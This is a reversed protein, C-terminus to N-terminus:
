TKNQIVIYDQLIIEKFESSTTAWDIIDVKWPLDSESFANVLDAHTALDLPTNTIIALDLDSYPKSQAKIRSGFAWITFHPVFKQLINQVIKLEENTLNLGM